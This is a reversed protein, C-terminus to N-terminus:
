KQLNKRMSEGKLEIRYANHLLRDCIADAITPDGIIQHWDKIPVQSTVFTSSSLNREEVIELLDKREAEKMPSMGIDDIILLDFKCLKGITKLYSGDGEGQALLKFLKNARLYLSSRGKRCVANGLACAIYSKGVGTPGTILVNHHKEAWGCDSLELITQKHLGRPHRYDIDELCAEQKLHAQKLLRQLRRNDRSTVEADILLGVFEEHTLDTRQPNEMLEQFVRAMGHLKMSQMKTITQERLM